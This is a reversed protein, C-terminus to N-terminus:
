QPITQENKSNRDISISLGSESREFDDKLLQNPRRNRNKNGNSNEM